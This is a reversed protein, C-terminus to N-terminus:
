GHRLQAGPTDDSARARLDRALAFIERLASEADVEAVVRGYRYHRVREAPAGLDFVALPMEMAMLEATVFSFTEPCISPLLCVGVGYSELLDPLREAAFAGHVQLADGPAAHEITGIVVIRAPLQHHGILEAMRKVVLAGKPVSIHGVIGIVLPEDLRPRVPRTPLYDIRHPRIRIRDRELEPYARLLIDASAQSFAILESTGLLAGWHRRWRAVDPKDLFGLFPVANRALCSRCRDLEPVGCYQGRDDILTWSPCAAFYDHLYCVTRVGAVAREHAWDVVMVPDDFSVLNNLHIAEISAGAILDLVGALTDVQMSWESGGQLLAVRYGLRPLDPTVVMVRQAQGRLVAVLGQRFRNAGGGMAHDFVLVVPEASALAVRIPERDAKLRWSERVRRVIRAAVQRLQGRILLSGLRGLRSRLYEGSATQACYRAPFDDIALVVREGGQLRVRLEARAGDVAGSIRGEILFGSAGAHPLQPYAERIDDRAGGPTCPVRSVSGDAHPVVLEIAEAPRDEALFWGWGFIRGNRLAISDIAYRHTM